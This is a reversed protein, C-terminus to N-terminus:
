SRPIFRYSRMHALKWAGDAGRSLVATFNASWSQGAVGIEAEGDVVAVDDNVPRIGTPTLKHRSGKMPGTLQAVMDSEIASRGATLEGMPSIVTGDDTWNAAVAAGDGANWSADVASLVQAAASELQAQREGASTEDAFATALLGFSLVVLQKVFRRIPPAPLRRQGKSEHIHQLEARTTM